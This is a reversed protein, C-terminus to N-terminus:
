MRYLLFLEQILKLVMHKVQRILNLIEEIKKYYIKNKLFPIISIVICNDFFEIYKAQVNILTIFFPLSIDLILILLLIITFNYGAIPALLM